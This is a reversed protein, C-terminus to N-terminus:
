TTCKDKKRYRRLVCILMLICPTKLVPCPRKCNHLPQLCIAVNQLKQHAPQRSGQLAAGDRPVRMGTEAQHSSGTEMQVCTYHAHIDVPACANLHLLVMSFQLYTYTCVCLVLVIVFQSTPCKRFCCGTYPNPPHFLSLLM